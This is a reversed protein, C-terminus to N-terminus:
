DHAPERVRTLPIDFTNGNALEVSVILQDATPSSYSLRNMGGPSVAAFAVSRPELRVVQMLQPEPTRPEMTASWQQIRLQLGAASDSISVLELLNTTQADASRVLAAISGANAASWQEELVREGIPGRWTGSLWGLDAVRGVLAIQSTTSTAAANVQHTSLLALLLCGLM